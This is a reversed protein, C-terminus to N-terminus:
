STVPASPEVPRGFLTLPTSDTITVPLTQGELSPEGPFAVIHNARSRGILKTPDNKSEGEVLVELTQGVMAAQRRRMIDEQVALLHHNRAKKTETSVDDPLDAAATGPRPSYKFIFCNQYQVRRLLDATQQYDADTEGPFGVIFDSALELDPMLDRARAVRDLYEERTYRRNMAALIRNSGAQAPLHLHPCVSPLEAMAAFLEDTADKPHSTVFRLREIGEIPDLRRLLDALTVGGDLGRGYSNVNQGLLTVEKVGDDALRRVEDTVEHPPRSHERGRVHPVICYACFNNCGRMISVFAQFRNPRRSVLRPLRVPGCSDTALIQERRQPLAAILDPLQPLDLPGCVIDVHPMRSFIANQERQAMCGMVAIVLHPNREKHRRLAGLLSWVKDEAHQRVSCTNILILDADGREDTHEYGADMLQGAIAESDLKNM